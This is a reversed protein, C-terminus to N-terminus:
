VAKGWHGDPDLSQDRVIRLHPKDKDTLETGERAERWYQLGSSSFGAAKMGTYVGLVSVILQNLSVNEEEALLALERHLSRTTRVTIRGSYDSVAPAPQPMRRRQEALAQATTEIADIALEYVEQFSDAYEAVDPLERVRAEFCPGYDDDEIRRVTINYNYPNM